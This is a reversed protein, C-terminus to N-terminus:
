EQTVFALEHALLAQQGSALDHFVRLYSSASAATDTNGFHWGDTVKQHFWRNHIEETTGPDAIAIATLERLQDSTFGVLAVGDVVEDHRGDDPEKTRPKLSRIWSLAEMRTVTDWDSVNEGYAQLWQDLADYDKQRM